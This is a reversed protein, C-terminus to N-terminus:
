CLVLSSIDKKFQAADKFLFAKVGFKLAVDINDQVDDFLVIEDPKINSFEKKLENIVYSWFDDHCKRYGIYCSIFHGDFINQFNMESLLFRARNGEQDVSLYCKVGQNRLQNVQSILNKDLYKREFHFQQKLYDKATGTWGFKKLYPMIIKEANAKGELCQHNDNGNFFSDLIEKVNKYGQKELEISFYYPLRILVGDVDFLIIKIKNM